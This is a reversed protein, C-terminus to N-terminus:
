YRSNEHGGSSTSLSFIFDSTILDSKILNSVILNRTQYFQISLIWESLILNCQHRRFRRGLTREVMVLVMVMVAMRVFQVIEPLPNVDM